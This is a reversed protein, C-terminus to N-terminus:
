FRYGGKILSKLFEKSETLPVGYCNNLHELAGGAGKTFRGKSKPYCGRQCDGWLVSTLKGDLNERLLPQASETSLVGAMSKAMEAFTLQQIPQHTIALHHVASKVIRSKNVRDRELVRGQVSWGLQRPSGATAQLHEWVSQAVPKNKYLEGKVWLALGDVSKGLQSSFDRANVLKFELPHGILYAPGERDRHDWNIYGSKLLPQCDLGKQVVEEGDLDQAECSAIGKVIWKDDTADQSKELAIDILINDPDALFAQRDFTSYTEILM